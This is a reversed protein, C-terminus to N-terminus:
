KKDEKVIILRVNEGHRFEGFPIKARSVINLDYPSTNDEDLWGDVANELMKEKQWKAGAKFLFMLLEKYKPLLHPNNVDVSDLVCDWAADDIGDAVPKDNIYELEKEDICTGDSLNCMWDRSPTNKKKPM